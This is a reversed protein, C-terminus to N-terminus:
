GRAFVLPEADSMGWHVVHSPLHLSVYGNDVQEVFVCPYGYEPDPETDSYLCVMIPQEVGLSETLEDPLDTRLGVVAFVPIGEVETIRRTQPGALSLREEVDGLPEDSDTAPRAFVALASSEDVVDSDSGSSTESGSTPAPTRSPATVPTRDASQVVWGLTGAVVLAAVVAAAIVRRRPHGRDVGVSPDAAPEAAPPATERMALYASLRRRDADTAGRSFAAHKLRTLEDANGDDIVDQDTM